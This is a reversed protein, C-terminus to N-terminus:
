SSNSTNAAIWRVNIADRVFQIKHEDTINQIDLYTNADTPPLLEIAHINNADDNIHFIMNVLTGANKSIDVNPYVNMLNEGNATRGISYIPLCAGGLIKITDPQETIMNKFNRNNVNGMTTAM